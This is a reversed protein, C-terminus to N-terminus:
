GTRDIAGVVRYPPQRHNPFWPRRLTRVSRPTVQTACHHTSPRGFPVAINQSMRITSM